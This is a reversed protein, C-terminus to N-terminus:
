DDAAGPRSLATNERTWTVGNERMEGIRHAALLHPLAATLAARMGNDLSDARSWAHWAANVASEPVSAEHTM